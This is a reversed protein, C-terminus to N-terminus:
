LVARREGVMRGTTDYLVGNRLIYMTDEKILKVAKTSPVEDSQVEGVGTTIEPQRRVLMFRHRDPQGSSTFPYTDGSTILTYQMTEADLLYLEDDAETYDFHLVYKTDEGARFGIVTGDLDDTAVVADQGGADNVAWIAPSLVGMDWKDGDWGADMGRTFDERELLVLRDDYRSGTVQIKLM